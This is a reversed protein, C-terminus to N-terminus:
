YINIAVVMQPSYCSIMCVNMVLQIVIVLLRPLLCCLHFHTMIEALLSSETLQTISEVYRAYATGTFGDANVICLYVSRARPAPAGRGGTLQDIVALVAIMLTHTHLRVSMLAALMRVSAPLLM